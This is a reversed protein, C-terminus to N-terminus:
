NWLWVYIGFTYFYPLLDTLILCTFNYVQTFYFCATLFLAVVATFISHNWQMYPLFIYKEVNQLTCGNQQTFPIAFPASYYKRASSAVWYYILEYWSFAGFRSTASNDINLYKRKSNVNELQNSIYRAPLPSFEHIPFVPLQIFFANAIINGYAIFFQYTYCM